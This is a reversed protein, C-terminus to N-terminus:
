HPESWRNDLRIQDSIFISYEIAGIRLSRGERKPVMRKKLAPYECAYFLTATKLSYNNKRPFNLQPLHRHM